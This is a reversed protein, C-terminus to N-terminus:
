LEVEGTAESGIAENVKKLETYFSDAYEWKKDEWNRGNTDHLNNDDNMQVVQYSTYGSVFEDIFIKHIPLKDAMWHMADEWGGVVEPTLLNADM